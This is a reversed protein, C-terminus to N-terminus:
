TCEAAADWDNASTDAKLPTPFPTHTLPLPDQRRCMGHALQRVGMQQRRGKRGECVSRGRTSSVGTNQPQTPCRQSRPPAQACSMVWGGDVFVSAARGEKSVTGMNHQRKQLVSVGGGLAQCGEVRRCHPAVSRRDLCKHHLTGQRVQRSSLWRDKGTNYTATQKLSTFNTTTHTRTPPHPAISQLQATVATFATTYRTHKSPPADVTSASTLSPPLVVWSPPPVVVLGAWRPSHCM